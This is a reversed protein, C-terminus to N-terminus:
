KEPPKARLPRPVTEWLGEWRAADAWLGASQAPDALLGIAAAAITCTSRAARRAKVHASAREGLSEPASKDGVKRGTAVAQEAAAQCRAMLAVPDPNGLPISLTEKAGLPSKLPTASASDLELQGARVALSLKKDSLVLKFDADGYRVGAVPTAILVEAGPRAGMGAGAQVSGRTLLLQERGKRCARFLAPGSVSLERGTSTHKLTLSAGDALTVWEAGDLEQGSALPGEGLKADGVVRLARCTAAAPAPPEGSSGSPSPSPSSSPLSLSALASALASPAPAAGQGKSCAALAALGVVLALKM